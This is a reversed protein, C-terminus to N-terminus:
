PHKSQLFKNLKLSSKPTLLPPKFKSDFDLYFKPVPNPDIDPNLKLTNILPWIFPCSKPDFNPDLKFTLM